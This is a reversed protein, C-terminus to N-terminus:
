MVSRLVCVDVQDLLGYEDERNEVWDQKGEADEIYRDVSIQM